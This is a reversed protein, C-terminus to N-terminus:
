KKSNEVKLEPTKQNKDTKFFFKDSFKSVKEALFEKTVQCSRKVNLWSGSIKGFIQTALPQIKAAVDLKAQKLLEIKKGCFSSMQDLKSTLTQKFNALSIGQVYMFYDQNDNLM